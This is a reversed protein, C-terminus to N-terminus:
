KKKKEAEGRQTNKGNEETQETGPMFFTANEWFENGKKRMKM